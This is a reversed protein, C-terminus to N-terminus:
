KKKSYVRYQGDEQEVFKGIYGVRNLAELVTRNIANGDVIPNKNEFFPVYEDIQLDHVIGKVETKTFYKIYRALFLKKQSLTLCDTKPLLLHMCVTKSIPMDNQIIKTIGTEVLGNVHCQLDESQYEQQIIYSFDDEMYHNELIYLILEESYADNEVSIEESTLSLLKMKREDVIDSEILSLCEQMDFNDKDIVEAFYIDENELIFQEVHKPYKKRMSPLMTKTMKIINEEILIDLKNNPIDSPAEMKWVRRLSTAIVRYIEAPIEDRRCIKTMLANMRDNSEDGYRNVEDASFKMEDITFECIYAILLDSEELEEENEECWEKTNNYLDYYRFINTTAHGLLGESILTNVQSLSNVDHIEQLSLKNDILVNVYEDMNSCVYNHLSTQKADENITTSAIKEYLHHENEDVAIQYYVSLIQAIMELNMEYLDNTYIADSIDKCNILDLEFYDPKWQLEKLHNTLNQIAQKRLGPTINDHRMVMDFYEASGCVQEKMLDILNDPLESYVPTKKCLLSSAVFLYAKVAENRQEALYQVVEASVETFYEIWRMHPLESDELLLSIFDYAEHKIIASAVLARKGESEHIMIYSFMDRNMFAVTQLHKEDLYECVFKPKAVAYTYGLPENDLVARVYKKDSQSIDDNQFVAIFDSYNEDIHGNTLLFHILKIYLSSSVNLIHQNKEVTAKKIVEEQIQEFGYADVYERFSLTHLREKEARKAAINEQLKRCETARFQEIKALEDKRKKYEPNNRMSAIASNIKNTGDYWYSGSKYEVQQSNEILDAVFDALSAYDARTKRAVRYIEDLQLFLADLEKQNKLNLENATRDKEFFLEELLGINAELDRSKIKIQNKKEELLAVVYGDGQQLLIFEAPFLNKYTVISFIKEASKRVSIGSLKTQYIQYENYINNLIRMDDVYMSIQRLFERRIPFKGNELYKLFINFSNHKSIIPLVPIIFDFFKTRDKEVFLDDRLLYFFRIPKEQGVNIIDNIERLKEFIQNTGYRDIDEFVFVDIGANRFLYKIEDLYRDFYSFEDEKEPGFLEIEGDKFCVRKFFRSKMQAIVLYEVLKYLLIVAVLVAPIFVDWQTLEMCLLKLFINKTEIKTMSIFCAFYVVLLIGAVIGVAWSEVEAKDPIKKMSVKSDPIKEAPIKHMLQNVIKGELLREIEGSKMEDDPMEDIKEFHALSIHLYQYKKGNETNKFTEMVSSKGAGYSGTIAVNKIGADSLAFQFASEYVTLDVDTRPALSKFDLQIDKNEFVEKGM